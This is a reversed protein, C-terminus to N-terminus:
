ASLVCRNRGQRKAEYLAKDGRAVLRDCDPHHDYEAIGISVTLAPTHATAEKATRLEIESRVKEAIRMAQDVKAEPLVVLFEEGGFRFVFDSARVCHLILEAVRRLAVDGADHGYTDNVSKFHDVDIMLLCLDLDHHIAIQTERALVTQLFRRNYLRTLPDRNSESREIKDIISQLLWATENIQENLQELADRVDGKVLGSRISFVKYVHGDVSAMLRKLKDCEPTSGLLLDSKHVVWMGFNTSRLMEFGGLPKDDFVSLKTIVIRSWDFLSSKLRECEIALNLNVEQARFSEATRENGIMEHVHRDDIISALHDIVDNILLISAILDQPDAEWKALRRTLERKLESFGYRIMRLPIGIRAHVAGVRHQREVFEVARDPTIPTFADVLWATMSSLLKGTVLDEPLFPQAEPHRTLLTYFTEAIDAGEAALMAQVRALRAPPADAHVRHLEDIITEFDEM